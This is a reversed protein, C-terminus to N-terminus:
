RQNSLCYSQPGLCCSEHDCKGSGRLLSAIPRPVMQSTQGHLESGNVATLLAMDAKRLIKKKKKMKVIMGKFMACHAWLQEFGLITIDLNNMIGFESPLYLM